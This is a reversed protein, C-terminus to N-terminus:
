LREVDIDSSEGVTQKLVIFLDDISGLLHVFACLVSAYKRGADETLVNSIEIENEEDM